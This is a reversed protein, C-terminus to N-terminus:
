SRIAVPRDSPRAAWLLLLGGLLWFPEYVCVALWERETLTTATDAVFTRWAFDVLTPLSHVLCFIGAATIVIRRARKPRFGICIWAFGFCLPIAILDAAFLKPHDILRLDAPM